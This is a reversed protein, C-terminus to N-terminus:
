PGTILIKASVPAAFTLKASTFYALPPGSDAMLYNLDAMLSSVQGSQTSVLSDTCDPSLTLKISVAALAM